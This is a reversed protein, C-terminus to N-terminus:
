RLRPSPAVLREVIQDLVAPADRRRDAQDADPDEAAAVFAGAGVGQIEADRQLERVNEAVDLVVEGAAADVQWEFIQAREAARDVVEGGADRGVADPPHDFELAPPRM